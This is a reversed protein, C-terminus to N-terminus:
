SFSITGVKRRVNNLVQRDYWVGNVENTLLICGLEKEPDMWMSTGTFGLHGFTNKSSHQGALTSEINEVSDFGKVYRGVHDIGVRKLLDLKSNLSLLTRCVGDITAFLGAHSVKEALVFANDDHVEGHIVHRNRRGTFACREGELDLWHKVEENDWYKSSIDYLHKGTLKEIELQLRLAGFDSYMTESKSIQYSLIQERWSKKDLRGWRPLGSNHHLLLKMEDTLQSEIELCAVGFTFPKTMSAIDFFLKGEFGLSITEYTSSKFDVIGVSVSDFHAQPLISEIYSKIDEIKSM